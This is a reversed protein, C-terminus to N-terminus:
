ESLIDCTKKVNISLKNAELCTSILALEKRKKRKQENLWAIEQLSYIHIMLLYYESHTTLLLMYIMIYALFFFWIDIRSTMTSKTNDRTVLLERDKLFNRIRNLATGRM